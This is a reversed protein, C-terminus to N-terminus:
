WQGALDQRSGLVTIETVSPSSVRVIYASQVGLNRRLTQVFGRWNPGHKQQANQIQWRYHESKTQEHGWITAKNCNLERMTLGAQWHTATERWPTDGRSNVGFELRVVCLDTQEDDISEGRSRFLTRYDSSRSFLGNCPRGTTSIREWDM